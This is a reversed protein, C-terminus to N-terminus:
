SYFLDQLLVDTNALELLRPIYLDDVVDVTALAYIAVAEILADHSLNNAQTTVFGVERLSIAVARADNEPNNLKALHLYQSNGIVLAIRKSNGASSAANMWALFIIALSVRVYQFFHPHRRSVLAIM